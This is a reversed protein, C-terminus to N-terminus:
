DSAQTAMRHVFASLAQRSIPTDPRFTGDDYGTAIGSNVMWEIETHFPHTPPVDSFSPGSPPSTAPNGSLRYLMAALSQRTVVETPRFTGDAYGRALGSEVLWEIQTVFPHHVSVDFFSPFPPLQVPPAGELRHLYAALAQRSAGATPRFSGDEYGTTIDHAAVWEIATCFAHGSGVDGFPGAGDDLCSSPVIPGVPDSAPGSGVANTATVTVSHAKGNEVGSIVCATDDTSCSAGGPQATAVYGAIDAGGDDAPLSWSVELTGDGPEVEIALPATPPGVPTVPDSPASPDSRGIDSSATVSFSYAVGNDLGTVTCSTASTTCTAGGPDATVEYSGVPAGGDSSPPDWLVHAAGDAPTAVVGSPPDPVTRPDDGLPVVLLQGATTSVVLHDGALVAHRASGSPLPSSGVPWHEDLHFEAVSSGSVVLLREHDAVPVPRGATTMGVRAPITPDVISGDTAYVLEDDGILEINFGRVIRSASSQHSLGTDTVALTHFTFGTTVNNYGYLVDPDATFAITRANSHGPSRDPLIEGDRVLVGGRLDPSWGPRTLTVAFSNSAGPRAEIDHAWETAELTLTDVPDFEDVDVETLLNAAAHGVLITSGDDSIGLHHPDSGVFTSRTIEGAETDVEVLHNAYETASARIVVYVHRGDPGVVIEAADLAVSTAAWSQSIVAPPEPLVFADASVGVGFLRINSNGAVVLIDGADVVERVQMSPMALEWESARTTADHRALVTSTAIFTANQDVDVTLAGSRGYNDILAPLSPDVVQGSTAHVLGDAYTIGVGFGSVYTGLHDMTVGDEDVTLEYFGFGTHLDNYGYLTEPDDSWTIRNAGTHGATVNPRPVGNDYIVVGAHGPSFGPVYRSVAIVHPAGPQVRIERAHAPGLGGSGLSVRRTLEFADLDVEFVEPLQASGVYARSGDEAVVVPGLGAALPLSRGLEGTAPDLEVLRGGLVPVDRAVAVLLVDRSADHAVGGNPLPVDAMDWHTGPQEPARSHTESAATSVTSAAIVCIVISLSIALRGLRYM